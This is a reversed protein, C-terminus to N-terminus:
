QGVPRKRLPLVAVVGNLVAMLLFTAAFSGTAWILAACLAPWVVVGGYSFIM